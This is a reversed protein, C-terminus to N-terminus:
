AAVEELVPEQFARVMGRRSDFCFADLAKRGGYGESAHWEDTGALSSMFQVTVGTKDNPLTHHTHFHGVGCWRHKTRGWTEAHERAIVQGLQAAKVKHGHYLGILCKGYELVQLDRLDNRVTTGPDNQFFWEIGKALMTGVLEDHNGPLFVVEMEDCYPRVCHLLYQSKADMYEHIANRPSGDVDMVNRLSSTRKQTNDYHFNDSGIIVFVKSPRGHAQAQEFVRRTCDHLREVALKRNYPDGHFEAGLAGFHWDTVGLLMAYPERPSEVVQVVPSVIIEPSQAQMWETLPDLVGRKLLGLDAADKRVRDWHRKDAKVRVRREKRRVLDEVLDDEPRGALEEDTFPVSDHTIGFKQLLEVAMPRSLAFERCLENITKGGGDNSYADRIARVNAGDVQLAERASRLHVIYVDESEIYVPGDISTGIVQTPPPVEDRPAPETSNSADSGHLWTVLDRYEDSDIARHLLRSLESNMRRFGAKWKHHNVVYETREAWYDSDLKHWDAKPTM